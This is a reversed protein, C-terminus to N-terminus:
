LETPCRQQTTELQNAGILKLTHPHFLSGSAARGLLEWCNGGLSGGRLAQVLSCVLLWCCVLLSSCGRRLQHLQRELQASSCGAATERERERQSPRQQQQQSWPLWHRRRRRAATSCHAALQGSCLQKKSKATLSHPSFPPQPQDATCWLLAEEAAAKEVTELSWTPLGM